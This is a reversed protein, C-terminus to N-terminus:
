VTGRLPGQRAPRFPKPPRLLAWLDAAVFTPRQASAALEADRRTSIGTLVLLSDCGYSHAAAIDTDLRDGVLIPRHAGASRVAAEVLSREPKGAVEPEAGTIERVVNVLMGNGPAIGTSTPLTLDVNTAVWPVGARVARVGENLLRWGVDPSLGQVVAAPDDDFTWVPVLGRATLADVLGEGGVVLVSSGPPVRKAVLDAAAQASTLVEGDAADIGLSRLHEAVVRGPRHANNTLFRIACGDARLVALVEAAGPVALPGLYVVGDLDLLVADYADVLRAATRSRAAGNV